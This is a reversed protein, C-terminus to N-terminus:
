TFSEHIRYSSPTSCAPRALWLTTPNVALMAARPLSKQSVKLLRTQSHNNVPLHCETVSPHDTSCAKPFAFWKTDLRGPTLSSIHCSGIDSAARGAASQCTLHPSSGHSRCRNQIEGGDMSSNGVTAHKVARSQVHFVLLRKKKFFFFIWYHHRGDRPTNTKISDGM